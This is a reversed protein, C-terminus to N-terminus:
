GCWRKRGFEAAQMRMEANWSDRRSHDIWDRDVQVGNRLVFTLKNPAPVLIQDIIDVKEEGVLDFVVDWLIDEPIQKGHCYNKGQRLFTACNWAYKGHAKKRKYAKGCKPCIIKRKFFHGETGEGPENGYTQAESVAQSRLFLEKSIIPPCAQEVYYKNLEGRNLVQKKTIHSEVFSKQLLLDGMYRENRLMYRITAGNWRDSYPAKVGLLDLMHAISWAGMGQAHKEFILRIVLAEREVIIYQNDVIQYGYVRVAPADGAAFRSRIRWKCNESVSRSEEQAFSALITLMLEGDGSTSHINQEEFYVDVDLAKLERVTELLTVTNRAFRSISKTIIMDIKGARCDELLRQFETRAEKTGTIGTDAYVGGYVWGPNRQILESYYSIQASISHLMAEKDSSVRCYAAVCSLKPMVPKIPNLKHIVM